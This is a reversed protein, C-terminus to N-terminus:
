STWFTRLPEPGVSDSAADLEAVEASSLSWKLAGFDERAQKLTKVGVIPIAGKAIVWNLAVQSVTRDTGKWAIDKMLKLLPASKEVLKRSVVRHRIFGKPPNEKSFKGALVGWALPMYGLMTLGNERCLTLLGNREHRRFLLSFHMQNSALKLGRKRLSDIAVAMADPYYNSVGIAGTQGKEHVDAMADMWKPINALGDMQHVQYLDVKKLGLRALSKALARALSGKRWRFMPSFKTAIVPQPADRGDAVCGGLLRESNGWGYLKATDFFNVGSRAAESYVACVDQKGYVKGYGWVFRSGWQWTGVCLKSARLSTGGLAVTNEAEL